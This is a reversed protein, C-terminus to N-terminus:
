IGYIGGIVVPTHLRCLITVLGFGLLVPHLRFTPLLKECRDSAALNRCKKNSGMRFVTIQDCWAVFCNQYGYRTQVHKIMNTCTQLSM